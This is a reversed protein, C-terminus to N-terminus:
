FRFLYFKHFLANLFISAIHDLAFMIVVFKKFATDFYIQSLINLFPGLLMQPLCGKLWHKRDVDASFM